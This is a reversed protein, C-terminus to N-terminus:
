IQGMRCSFGFNGTKFSEKVVENCVTKENIREDIQSKM